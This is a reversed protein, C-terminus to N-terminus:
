NARALQAGSRLRARFERAERQLAVIEDCTSRRTSEDPSDMSWLAVVRRLQLSRTHLLRTAEEVPVHRLDAALELLLSEAVRKDTRMGENPSMLAVRYTLVRSAM